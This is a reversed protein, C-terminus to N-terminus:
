EQIPRVPLGFARNDFGSTNLRNNLFILYHGKVNTDPTASYSYGNSGGTGLLGDSDNRYGSLPYYAYGNYLRGYNYNVPIPNFYRTWLFTYNEPNLQESSQDSSTFNSWTGEIPVRFGLPSPDFISKGITYGQATLENDNWLILTSNADTESSWNGEIGVFKEPNNVAGAFSQQTTVVGYTYGNVYTAVRALPDKRGFQYYLTGPDGQSNNTISGHGAFSASRAGIHRDMIFKDAYIGGSWMPTAAAADAYSHLEGQTVDFVQNTSTRLPKTFKTNRYPNYSTAWCHISWIVVGNKKVNVVYNQEEFGAPQTIKIANQRTITNFEPSFSKEVVLGATSAGDYWSLEVSYNGNSTWDSSEITNASGGSAYNTWFDNVRDVIPIYFETPIDTRPATIYCNSVRVKGIEVGGYTYDLGTLNRVVTSNTYDMVAKTGTINVTIIRDVQAGDGDSLKLKFAVVDADSAGPYSETYVVSNGRLSLSKMYKAEIEIDEIPINTEFPILIERMSVADSPIDAWDYERTGDTLTFEAGDSAVGNDVNEWDTAVAEAAWPSAGNAPDFRLNYSLAKGAVWETSPLTLTYEKLIGDNGTTTHIYSVKVSSLNAGFNQPIMFLAEDGAIVDVKQTQNIQGVEETVLGAWNTQSTTGSLTWSVFDQSAIDVSTNEDTTLFEFTGTRHYDQLVLGVVQFKEGEELVATSELQATFQLKSLAHKFYLPVAREDPNVNAFNDVQNLTLAYILDKHDAIEDPTTYSFSPLGATTANAPTFDNLILNYPAIAVFSHKNGQSWHINPLTAAPATSKEIVWPLYEGGEITTSVKALYMHNPLSSTANFDDVGTQYCLMTMDVVNDNDLVVGKTNFGITNDDSPLEVVVSDDKHCGVLLLNLAFIGLIIRKM